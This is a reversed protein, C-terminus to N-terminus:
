FYVLLAPTSVPQENSVRSSLSVTANRLWQRAKPYSAYIEEIKLESELKKGSNILKLFIAAELSLPFEFNKELLFELWALRFRFALEKADLRADKAHQKWYRPNEQDIRILFLVAQISKLLSKIACNAVKQPKIKFEQVAEQLRPDQASMTEQVLAVYREKGANACEFARHKLSEIQDSSFFFGRATQYPEPIPIGGTDIHIVRNKRIALISAHGPNGQPDIFGTRVLLTNALQSSPPLKLPEKLITQLIIEQYWAFANDLEQKEMPTLVGKLPFIKSRFFSIFICLSSLHTGRAAASSFLNSSLREWGILINEKAMSANAYKSFAFEPYSDFLIVIENPDAGNRL